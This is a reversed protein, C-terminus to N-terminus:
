PTFHLRKKEYKQLSRVWGRTTLELGALRAALRAADEDDLWDDAKKVDGGMHYGKGSFPRFGQM